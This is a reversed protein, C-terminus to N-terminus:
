EARSGTETAIGGNGDPYYGAFAGGTLDIVYPECPSDESTYAYGLVNGVALGIGLDDVFGDTATEDSSYTYVIDYWGGENETITTTTVYQSGDAYTGVFDYTGAFGTTEGQPIGVEVGVATGVGSSDDPWLGFLTGDSQRVLTGPSCAEGFASVVVSDWAVAVSEGTDEGAEGLDDSYSLWYVPGTGALTVTGTYAGDGSGGEYTYDGTLAVVGEDQALALTPALLLCFVLLLLSKM